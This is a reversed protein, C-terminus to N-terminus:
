KKKKKEISTLTNPDLGQAVALQRKLDLLVAVERNVEEKSVNGLAKVARVKNGQFLSFIKFYQYKMHAKFSIIRILATTGCFLNYDKLCKCIKEVHMLVKLEAQVLM